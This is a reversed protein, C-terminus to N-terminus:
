KSLGRSDDTARQIIAAVHAADKDPDIGDARLEAVLEDNSITTLREVELHDAAKIETSTLVAVGHNAFYEQAIPMFKLWSDAKGAETAFLHALFRVYHNNNM